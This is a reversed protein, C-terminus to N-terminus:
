IAATAIKSGIREALLDMDKGIKTDTIRAYIQTTKISNHGLLRSVTELPVGNALTVTTAFTHRALHYTLEKNIGCLAAIEKLYNNCKQNSYIPLLRNSKPARRKTDAYKDIIQKPIELLPITVGVSTKQRKTVLRQRGEGDIQICGHTLQEVDAYSLGTFCSFLFMDKVLTLRDSDFEKAILTSLEEQTLYGRDVKEFQIKYTSFPDAQIWGNNLALNFMTRFHKVLKSATNNGIGCRNRLWLDFGKIFSHNINSIAIDRINYKEEMYEALRSRTYVYRQYTDKVVSGSIMIQYYDEIFKDCLPLLTICKEELCLISNKLITASVSEGLNIKEFYRRKIMSRLEEITQNIEKEDRTLGMTRHDHTLWREPKIWLKTSFHAVDGNVTIRCFITACGDKRLKQRQIAFGVTFSSLKKTETKLTM